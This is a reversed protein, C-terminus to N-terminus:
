VPDEGKVDEKADEKVADVSTKTTAFRRAPIKRLFLEDLELYSRNKTEPITFFLLVLGIFGTGAFFFATKVGWGAGDPAASLMLPSCYNFILGFAGAGAAAAGSTKARLIPTSSEGLFVYGLPGASTSYAAVWLCMFFITANSTASTVGTFGLGGIVVLSAVMVLGGYNILTRRGAREVLYFSALIGSLLIVNVAVTGLFPNKLGALQFFYSTYGFVVPIGILQQWAFPAFSIWTRRLNTGRFLDIFSIGKALVALQKGDEVEQKLTAYELEVNYGEVGGNIRQLVKKAAEDNGRRAYYRPSEPIVLLLIMVMGAFGFTSYLGRKYDNPTSSTQIANLVIAAVLGGLGWMLSYLGLLAGRIRTPAVESVYTAVSGQALGISLGTLTKAGCWAKWSTATVEVAGAAVLLITLLAMMSKRGFRDSPYGGLVLSVISAASSLGGWVALHQPHIAPLGDVTITAMQNIFGRNAILNGAHLTTTSHPPSSLSRTLWRSPSLLSFFRSAMELPLMVLYSLPMVM